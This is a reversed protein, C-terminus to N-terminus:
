EENRESDINWNQAEKKAKELKQLNFNYKDVVYITVIKFPHSERRLIPM